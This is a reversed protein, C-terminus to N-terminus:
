DKKALRKKSGTAKQQKKEPVEPKPVKKETPALDEQKVENKLTKLVTPDKKSAVAAESKILGVVEEIQDIEKLLTGMLKESHKQSEQIAKKMGVIIDTLSKSRKKV